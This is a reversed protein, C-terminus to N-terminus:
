PRSPPAVPNNGGEGVPLALSLDGVAAVLDAQAQSMEWLAGLYSDRVRLVRRRLDIMRLVDVGPEGSLFLKEMGKLGEQLERLVQTFTEAEARAATLRKLAAEVDQQVEVEKQRLDLLAKTQEARRQLIEGQHTNFVPISLNIQGGILNIRTPDYAYAPGITPNGYRNAITLRLTAEAKEVAAQRAHLDARKELALPLLESAQLAPVGIDLSGVLSLPQDWVGLARRLDSAATVLARRGPGLGGRAETVEAKALIVEAARLKGGKLLQESQKLLQENLRVTEELLQLKQQQFLVARYARLVRVALILEQDAIEWDTMSLAARAEAKRFTGQGRLEVEWFLKTEDAVRNTIGASVPGNNGQVRQELLPNFPYTRAIVVGAAAIGHRQRTAALEPNNQLAWLVAEELSLDPPLPQPAPDPPVALTTSILLFVWTLFALGGISWRWRRQGNWAKRLM